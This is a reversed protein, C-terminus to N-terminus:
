LQAQSESRSRKFRSALVDEISRKLNETKELFAEITGYLVDNVLISQDLEEQLAMLTMKSRQRFAIQSIRNQQRRKESKDAAPPSKAIQGRGQSRRTQARVTKPSPSVKSANNGAAPSLQTGAVESATPAGKVQSSSPSGYQLTEQESWLLPDLSMSQCNIEYDPPGLRALTTPYQFSNHHTDWGCYQGYGDTM